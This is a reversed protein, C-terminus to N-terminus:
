EEFSFNSLFTNSRPCNSLTFLFESVRNHADYAKRNERKRRENTSSALAGREQLLWLFITQLRFLILKHFRINQSHQQKKINELKNILMCVSSLGSTSRVFSTKMKKNNIIRSKKLKKKLLM